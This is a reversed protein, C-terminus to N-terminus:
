YFSFPSVLASGTPVQLALIVPAMHYPNRIEVNSVKSVVSLIEIIVEVIDYYSPYLTCM